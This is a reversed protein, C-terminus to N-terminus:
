SLDPLGRSEHGFFDDGIEKHSRISVLLDSFQRMMYSLLSEIVEVFRFRLNLVEEIKPM